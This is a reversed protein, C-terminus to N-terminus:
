ERDLGAMYQMEVIAVAASTEDTSAGWNSRGYCDWWQKVEPAYGATFKSWPVNDLELRRRKLDIQLISDRFMRFSDRTVRPYPLQDLGAGWTDPTFQGNIITGDWNDIRLQRLGIETSFQEAAEEDIFAGGTAYPVGNYDELYSNGGWHPEKEILLFEKDRLLYAATLGSVGGGIVVVDYSKTITPHGFTRGDRIQHCIQYHEGDVQPEPEAAVLSLDVPCGAAISGAVVFRIFDRRTTSM